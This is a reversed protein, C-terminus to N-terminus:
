PWVSNFIQGSPSPFMEDTMFLHVPIFLNEKKSKSIPKEQVTSTKKGGGDFSGKLFRCLSLTIDIQDRHRQETMLFVCLHAAFLVM